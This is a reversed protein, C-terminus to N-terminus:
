RWEELTSAVTARARELLGRVTSTTTSLVVGIEAYSLGEVERLVWATRQREPLLRLAAELAALLAAEVNEEGPGPRTDRVQEAVEDVDLPPRGGGAPAVARAARQKHVQHRALVYLWTRVSADGRFSPFARWASLVVEQLCDEADQADGLLGYAYRHLSPGHREVLQSFADKDGLAARRALM